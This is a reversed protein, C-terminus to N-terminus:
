PDFICCTGPLGYKTVTSYHVLVFLPWELQKIVTIYIYIRNEISLYQGINSKQTSRTIREKM